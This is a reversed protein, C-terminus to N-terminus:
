GRLLTITFHMNLISPEDEAFTYIFMLMPCVAHPPTHSSVVPYFPEQGTLHTCLM